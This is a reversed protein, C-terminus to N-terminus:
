GRNEGQQKIEQNYEHLETNAKPTRLNRNRKIVAAVPLGEGKKIIPTQPGNRLIWILYFTLFFLGTSLIGAMLGQYFPAM